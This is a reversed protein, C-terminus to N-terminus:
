NCQKAFCVSFRVKLKSLTHGLNGLGHWQYQNKAIRSMTEVSELVNVIDYIRRRKTELVRAMKDLCIVIM